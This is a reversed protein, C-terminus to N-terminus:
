DNNYADTDPDYGLGVDPRGLMYRWRDEGDLSASILHWGSNMMQL